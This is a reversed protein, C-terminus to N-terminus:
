GVIPRRGGARERRSGTRRLNREDPSVFFEILQLGDLVVEDNNSLGPDALREQKLLQDLAVPTEEVITPVDSLKFVGYPVQLRRPDHNVICVELSIPQTPESLQPALHIGAEGDRRHGPWSTGSLNGARERTGSAEVDSLEFAILDDLDDLLYADRAWNRELSINHILRLTADPERNCEGM